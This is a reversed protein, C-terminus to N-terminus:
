RTPSGSSRHLMLGGVEAVSFGCVMRSDRDKWETFPVIRRTEPVDVPSPPNSGGAFYTTNGGGGGGGSAAAAAVALPHTYVILRRLRLHSLRLRWSPPPDVM